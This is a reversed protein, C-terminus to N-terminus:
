GDLVELGSTQIRRKLKMMRNQADEDEVDFVSRWQKPVESCVFLETLCKLSLLMLIIIFYHM